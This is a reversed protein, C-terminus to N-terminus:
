MTIAKSIILNMNSLAAWRFQHAQMPLNIQQIRWLLMPMGYGLKNRLAAASLGDAAAVNLDPAIHPSADELTGGAAGEPVLKSPADVLPRMVVRPKLPKSVRPQQDARGGMGLQKM